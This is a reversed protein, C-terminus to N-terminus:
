KNEDWNSKLKKFVTIIEIGDSDGKNLLRKLLEAKFEKTDKESGKFILKAKGGNERIYLYYKM